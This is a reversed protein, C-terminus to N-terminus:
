WGPRSLGFLVMATVRDPVQRVLKLAIPLSAGQVLVVAPRWLHIELHQALAEAWLESALARRPCSSAGRGWLDPLLAPAAPHSKSAPQIQRCVALIRDWFRSARGVGITILSWSHLLAGLPPDGILRAGASRGLAHLADSHHGVHGGGRSVTM